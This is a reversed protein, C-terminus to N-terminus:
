PNEQIQIIKTIQELSINGAAQGGLLVAHSEPDIGILLVDPNEEVLALLNETEASGMDYVVTCNHAASIDIEDLNRVEIWPSSQM